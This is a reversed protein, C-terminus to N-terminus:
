FFARPLALGGRVNNEPRLGRPRRQAPPRGALVGPACNPLLVGDIVHIVGNSQLVNAITVRAVRGKAEKLDSQGSAPVGV